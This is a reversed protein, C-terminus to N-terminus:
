AQLDVAVDQWYIFPEEDIGLVEVLWKRIDRLRVPFGQTEQKGTLLDLDFCCLKNEGVVDDVDDFGHAHVVEQMIEAADIALKDGVELNMDFLADTLQAVDPRGHIRARLELVKAEDEVM